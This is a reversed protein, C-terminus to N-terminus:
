MCCCCCCVGFSVIKTVINDVSKFSAHLPLEIATYIILVVLMEDWKKKVRCIPLIVDVCFLDQFTMEAECSEVHTLSLMSVSRSMSGSDSLEHIQDKGNSEDESNSSINSSKLGDSKNQDIAEGDIEKISSDIANGQLDDNVQSETAVKM